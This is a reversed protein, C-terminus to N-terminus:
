CCCCYITLLLLLTVSVKYSSVLASVFGGTYSFQAVGAKVSPLDAILYEQLKFLDTKTMEDRAGKPKPQTLANNVELLLEKMKSRPSSALNGDEEEKVLLGVGFRQRPGATHKWPDDLYLTYMLDGYKKSKINADDGM